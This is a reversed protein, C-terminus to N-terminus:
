RVKDMLRQVKNAPVAFGINQAGQVVALNIGILEGDLNFLAGGSNGPNISADTQLLGSCEYGCQPSTFSRNIGSIVGTTVSNELGLPNGIAIVTEGIMIEYMNAFQMKKVQHPLNIRIIALDDDPSIEVIESKLTTGDSLVVYISTARQVVHANTVIFGSSDLIVGSGLSQLTLTGESYNKGFYDRFFEDLEEGYQGWDPHEKLNVTQETQINVVSHAYKHVVRVIPTRRSSAATCGADLCLVFLFILLMFSKVSNM